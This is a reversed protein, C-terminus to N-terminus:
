GIIIKMKKLNLLTGTEELKPLLARIGQEYGLGLSGAYGLTLRDPSKLQESEEAPRPRIGEAPPFYFVETKKGFERELYEAMERSVGLSLSAYSYIKKM